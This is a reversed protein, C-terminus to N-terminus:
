FKRSLTYRNIKVTCHRLELLAAALGLAVSTGTAVGSTAGVTIFVSIVIVSSGLSASAAMTTGWLLSTISDLLESAIGLSRFIATCELGISLSLDDGELLESLIALRGLTLSAGTGLASALTTASHITATTSAGTTTTAAKSAVTALLFFTVGVSGLITEVLLHFSVPHLTSVFAKNGLSEIILHIVVEFFSILLWSCISSSGISFWSSICSDFLSGFSSHSNLM